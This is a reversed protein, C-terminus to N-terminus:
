WRTMPAGLTITNSGGHENAANIGAIVDSVTLATFPSPLTREERQTLSLQARRRM